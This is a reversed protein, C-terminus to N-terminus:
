QQRVKISCWFPINDRIQEVQEATISNYSYSSLPCTVEVNYLPEGICGCSAGALILGVVFLGFAIKTNM